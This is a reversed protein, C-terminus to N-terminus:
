RVTVTTAATAVDVSGIGVRIELRWRGVVPVTLNQSIYHGPGAPQLVVDDPGIKQEPEALTVRIGTPRILQGTPDFLYLHLVDAGTRAPELDVQVTGAPRSAIRLPLTADFPQSAVAKAPAAGVLLASLLLVVLAAGLEVLVSRRFAPLEAGARAAGPVPLRVPGAPGAPPTGEAGDDVGPALDDPAAAAAAPGTGVTAALARVRAPRGPTRSRATALHQQVWVRSVGAAALIMLVLVLKAVLLRGYTTSVLATPSGVERVAQVAGSLVLAAMSGFALRSFRPLVAALTAVPVGARLVVGLLGVLGGIWVGMGAVHVAAVFVSLVPLSGAVPHGVAATSVVLAVGLVGVVAIRGKGPREGDIWGPLLAAGLLIALGLRVVLARGYESDATASLLAPDFTSGLGVGAAYPGQVLFSLVAGVGVAAVGWGAWRRLRAESWGQPWCVLLLVPLGIALAIGAFGIWKAVPLLVAVVPDTRTTAQAGAAGATVAPGDGVVFSLTGAVPHSDDSIVRYTVVYGADPLGTRLPIVVSSGSVRAAGTDARVGDVSVVRAYGAQLSVAEDFQLTVQSPAAQLRAGDAPDTQELVAHASAPPAVGVGLALWGALVAALLVLSPLLRRGRVSAAAGARGRVM